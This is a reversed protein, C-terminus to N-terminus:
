MQFIAARGCSGLLVQMNEGVASVYFFWDCFLGM